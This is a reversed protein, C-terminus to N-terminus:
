IRQYFLIYPTTPDSVGSSSSVLTDNFKQMKACEEGPSRTAYAYYHGFHLSGSHCVVGILRYKTQNLSIREEIEIAARNKNQLDSFRNLHIVVYLSSSIIKHRIGAIVKSQCKECSWLARSDDVVDEEDEYSSLSEQVTRSIFLFQVPSISRREVKFLCTKCTVLARHEVTFLRELEGIKNKGPKNEEFVSCLLNDLFCHADQQQGNFLQIKRGIDRIFTSPDVTGYEGGTYLRMFNQLARSVPQRESFKGTQFYDVFRDLAMVCQMTANFFCTNGQNSLGKSPVRKLARNKM